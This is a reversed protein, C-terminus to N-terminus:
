VKPTYALVSPLPVASAWAVTLSVTVWPMRFVKLTVSSPTALASTALTVVVARVAFLGSVWFSMTLTLSGDPARMTPVAGNSLPAVTVTVLLSM